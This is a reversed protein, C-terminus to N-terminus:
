QPKCKNRETHRTVSSSENPSARRTLWAWFVVQWMGVWVGLVCGAIFQGPKWAVAAGCLIAVFPTMLVSNMGWAIHDCKLLTVSGTAPALPKETPPTQDNTNM